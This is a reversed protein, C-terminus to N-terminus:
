KPSQPTPSRRTCSGPLDLSPEPKITAVMLLIELNTPYVLAAGVLSEDKAKKWKQTYMIYMYFKTRRFTVIQRSSRSAPHRGGRPSDLALEGGGGGTPMVILGNLPDAAAAAALSLAASEPRGNAVEHQM